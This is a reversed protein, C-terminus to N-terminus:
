WSSAESDSTRNESAAHAPWAKTFVTEGGVGEEVDSIVLLVALRCAFRM